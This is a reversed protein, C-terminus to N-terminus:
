IEDRLTLSRLGIRNIALVLRKGQVAMAALAQQTAFPKPEPYPGNFYEAGQIPIFSADATLALTLRGGELPWGTEEPAPPASAEGGAKVCSVAVLWSLLASVLLAAAARKRWSFFRRAAKNPLTARRFRSM